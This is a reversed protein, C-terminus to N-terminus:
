KVEALERIVEGPETSAAQGQMFESIRSAAEDALHKTPIELWQLNALLRSIQGPLLQRVHLSLEGAAELQRLRAVRSELEDSVDDIEDLITDPVDGELAKDRMERIAQLDDVQLAMVAASKFLASRTPESGDEKLWLEAAKREWTFAREAAILSSEIDGAAATRLAADFATIALDHLEEPSLDMSSM